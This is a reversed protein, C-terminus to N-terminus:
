VPGPDPTGAHEPAGVGHESRPLLSHELAGPQVEDPLQVPTPWSQKECNVCNEHSDIM